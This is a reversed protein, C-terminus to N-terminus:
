LGESSIGSSLRIRVDQFMSGIYSTLAYVFIVIGAMELVEEITSYVAYLHKFGSLWVAISM